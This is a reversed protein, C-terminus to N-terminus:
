GHKNNFEISRVISTLQRHGNIGADNREAPTRAHTVVVATEEATVGRVAQVEERVQQGCGQRVAQAGRVHGRGRATGEVRRAARRGCVTGRGHEAVVGRRTGTCVVFPRM